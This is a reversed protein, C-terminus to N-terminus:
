IAESDSVFPMDCVCQGGLVFSATALSPLMLEVILILSSVLPWHGTKWCTLSLFPAPLWTGQGLGPTKRSSNNPIPNRKAWRLVLSSRQSRGEDGEWGMGKDGFATPCQVSSALLPRLVWMMVVMPKQSSSKPPLQAGHKLCCSLGPFVLFSPLNSDSELGGSIWIWGREGPERAQGGGAEESCVPVWHCLAPGDRGLM